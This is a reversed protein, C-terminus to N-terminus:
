PGACRRDGLEQEIETVVGALEALVMQAVVSVGQWSRVAELFEPAIKIVKIGHLPHTEGVNIFSWRRGTSAHLDESPLEFFWVQWSWPGSVNSRDFVTSSSIEAL